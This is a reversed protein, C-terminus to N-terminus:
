LFAKIPQNNVYSAALPLAIEAYVLAHAFHDPGTETYSAVYNGQNDKEYM